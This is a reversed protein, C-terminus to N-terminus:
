PLTPPSGQRVPFATGIRNECWPNINEWQDNLSFLPTKDEFFTSKTATWYRYVCVCMCVFLCMSGTM